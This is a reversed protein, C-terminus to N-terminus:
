RCRLLHVYLYLGSGNLTEEETQMCLGPGPKINTGCGQDQYVGQENTYKAFECRVNKPTAGTSTSPPVATSSTPVRCVPSAAVMSALALLLTSALM